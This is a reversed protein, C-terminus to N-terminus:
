RKKWQKKDGFINKFVESAMEGNLCTLHNGKIKQLKIDGLTANKWFKENDINDLPLFTFKENDCYLVKVDGVYNEPEYLMAAEFSQSFINLRQKINSLTNIENLKENEISNLM